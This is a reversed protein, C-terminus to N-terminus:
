RVLSTKSSFYESELLNRKLHREPPYDINGLFASLASFKVNKINNNHTSDYESDVLLILHEHSSMSSYEAAQDSQKQYAEALVPLKMAKLEKLIENKM